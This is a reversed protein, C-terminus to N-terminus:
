ARKLLQNVAVWTARMKLLHPVAYRCPGLYTGAELFVPLNPSGASSHLRLLESWNPDGTNLYVPGPTNLKVEWRQLRKNWRSKFTSLLYQEIETDEMDERQFAFHDNQTDNTLPLPGLKQEIQNKLWTSSGLCGLRRLRNTYAVYSQSAAPSLKGKPWRAKVRLPSVDEFAFADLGCSERFFRGTCCKDENFKLHLEEFIPRIVPFHDKHVVMDDGYVWVGWPDLVGHELRWPISDIVSGVALAWFTLAEVPFCCASGMPAFKRLRLSHGDPLVTEESRCAKLCNFVHEPFLLRTLWLSVRDSAEKMDVTVHDGYFSNDRALERNITQDAFNVFGATINNPHEIERVLERMVGQQIWQLELPEMSILRPGRSDKPVLVVKATATHVEELAELVELDDCLHTMNFFFYEPYSYLEDLKVYFRRFKMKNWPKEGTAVAGPGHGPRIELPDFRKLAYCILSRANDVARCAEPSLPVEETEEPLSRDTEVFADIVAQNAKEDCVGDLKYFLYCIQRVARVAAIQRFLKKSGAELVAVSGDQDFVLKWFGRLFVPLYPARRSLKFAHGTPLPCDSSLAKDLCKGLTPLTKTLFSLGEVSVRDQITSIDQELDSSRLNCLAAQDRLVRVLLDTYFRSEVPKEPKRKM